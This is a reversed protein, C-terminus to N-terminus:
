VACPAVASSGSGPRRGAGRSFRRCGRGEARSTPQDALAGSRRGRATCNGDARAAAGSGTGARQGVRGVRRMTARGCSERVRFLAGVQGGAWVNFKGALAAARGAQAAAPQRVAATGSGNRFWRGWQPQSHALEPSCPRRCVDTHCCCIRSADLAQRGTPKTYSSLTNRCSCIM